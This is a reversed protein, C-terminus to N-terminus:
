QIDIWIMMMHLLAEEEHSDIIAEEEHSDIILTNAKKRIDDCSRKDNKEVWKIAKKEIMLWKAKKEPFINNLIQIFLLTILAKDEKVPLNNVFEKILKLDKLSWFGISDQADVIQKFLNDDGIPKSRSASQNM